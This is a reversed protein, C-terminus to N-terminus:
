LADTGIAESPNLVRSPKGFRQKFTFRLPSLGKPQVSVRDLVGARSALEWLLLLALPGVVSAIRQPTPGSWFDGGAPRPERVHITPAAHRDQRANADIESM